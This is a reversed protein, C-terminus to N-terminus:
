LGTWNINEPMNDLINGRPFNRAPAAWSAAMLLDGLKFKKDNDTNVIFGVVSRNHILKIYKRGFKIESDKLYENYWDIWVKGINHTYQERDNSAKAFDAFNEAMLNQVNQAEQETIKMINM